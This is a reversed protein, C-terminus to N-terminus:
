DQQKVNELDGNNSENIVVSPILERGSEIYALLRHRGEEVTFVSDNVKKVLISPLDKDDNIDLWRAMDAVKNRDTGSANNEGIKISAVPLLFRNESDEESSAKESFIQRTGHTSLNRGKISPLKGADFGMGTIEEIDDGSLDSEQHKMCNNYRGSLVQWIGM